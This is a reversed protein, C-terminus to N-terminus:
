AMDIAKDSQETDGPASNGTMFFLVAGILTTVASLLLFPVYSDTVHLTASLFLSGIASGLGIAATMFSLMLSYNKMDFRRSVLYAGIDGEAGQALGVILVATVLLWVAPLHSALIVFGIAPLGLAAIAVFHASIRDLAIGCAFRGVLVGIAYFSVLWTALSDSAGSDMVVLKLQSSAFVQPLNVLIMGAFILVFARNRILGMFEPMGLRHDAAHRAGAPKSRGMMAVAIAGGVASAVALSQWGARWGHEAIQGALLPVAIASILPPGSMLVSLAIGRAANFREVIVRCFVMSTTLVGFIHQILYIAFFQLLSGNMLTYAFFGLPVVTFGVMAAVRPGVRDTFRGAVPILPMTLLSISGILAFQAKSWGFEQMMAPGLLSMTYHSIASGLSMGLACALLTSWNIRFERFYM